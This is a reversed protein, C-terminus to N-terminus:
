HLVFLVGLFALCSRYDFKLCGLAVMKLSMKATTSGGVLLGRLSEQMSNKAFSSM